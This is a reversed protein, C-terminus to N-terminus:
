SASARRKSNRREFSVGSSSERRKNAKLEKISEQVKAMNAMIEHHSEFGRQCEEEIRNEMEQINKELSGKSISIEERIKNHLEEVIYKVAADKAPDHDDGRATAEPVQNQKAKYRANLKNYRDVLDKFDRTVRELDDKNKRAEESFKRIKQNTKESRSHYGCCPCEMGPSRKPTDEPSSLIRSGVPSLGGASVAEGALSRPTRAANTDPRTRGEDLYAQLRQEDEPTPKWQWDIESEKGREAGGAVNPDDGGAANPDDGGEANPDDGGANNIGAAAMADDLDESNLSSIEAGEEEETKLRIAKETNSEEDSM